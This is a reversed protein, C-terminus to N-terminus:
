RKTCASYSGSRGGGNPSKSCAGRGVIEDFKKSLAFPDKLDQASESLLEEDSAAIIDEVLADTLNFFPDNTTKKGM